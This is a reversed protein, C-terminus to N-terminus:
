EMSRLSLSIRARGCSTIKCKVFIKGMLLQMMEHTMVAGMMQKNSTIPCLYPTRNCGELPTVEMDPKAFFLWFKWLQTHSMRLCVCAFISLVTIYSDKKQSPLFTHRSTSMNHSWTNIHTIYPTYCVCAQGGTEVNSGSTGSSSAAFM